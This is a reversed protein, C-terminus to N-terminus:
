VAKGSLSSYLSRTARTFSAVVPFKDAKQTLCKPMSFFGRFFFASAAAAVAASFAGLVPGLFAGLVPRFFAGVFFVAGAGAAAVRCSAGAASTSARSNGAPVERRASGCGRPFNGSSKVERAAFAFFLQKFM